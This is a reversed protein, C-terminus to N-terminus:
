VKDGEILKIRTPKFYSLIDYLNPHNDYIHSIGSIHLLRVQKEMLLDAIKSAMSFNREILKTEMKVDIDGQRVYDEDVKKQIQSPSLALLALIQETAMNQVSGSSGGEYKVFSILQPDEIGIVRTEKKSSYELPVWGEFARTLYFKVLSDINIKTLIDSPM